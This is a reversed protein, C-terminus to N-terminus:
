INKKFSKFITDIDEQPITIPYSIIIWTPEAVMSATLQNQRGKASGIRIKGIDINLERSVQLTKNYFFDFDFNQPKYQQTIYITESRSNNIILTVVDPNKSLSVPEAQYGKPLLVPYYIPFNVSSTISEPLVEKLKKKVYYNNLFWFFGILVFLSTFLVLFVRRKKM